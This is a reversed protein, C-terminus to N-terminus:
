RFFGCLSPPSPTFQEILLLKENTNTNIKTIYFDETQQAFLDFSEIKQQALLHFYSFLVYVFLCVRCIRIHKMSIFSNGYIICSTIQYRKLIVSIINFM